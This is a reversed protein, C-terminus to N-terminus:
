NKLYKKINAQHEVFTKAYHIVGDQDHLYYLYSTKVPRLTALIAKLGPNGIPNKPLGRSKYTEPAVDVQLAMGISLRHWLIGAIYARDNDGKAEGEVLSAMIILDHESKGSKAIEPRLPAVKKEFNDQMSKLVKAEDADTLFFYTDPFLRGESKQAEVLFKEKDFSPLKASFVEAMDLASFGEPITVKVPALHREGREIRRAVEYVTLKNELFYDASMIHKEGGYVIVFAEFVVRSRIINAEKLKFSVSRLSDGSNISVITGVPFDVPSNLFFFFVMVGIIIITPKINPM